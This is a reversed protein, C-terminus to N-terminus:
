LVGTEKLIKRNYELVPIIQKKVRWRIMKGRQSFQKEGATKIPYDGVLQMEKQVEENYQGLVKSLIYEMSYTQTDTKTPIDYAFQIPVHEKRIGSRGYMGYKRQYNVFEFRMGNCLVKFLHKGKFKLKLNCYLLLCQGILDEIDSVHGSNKQVFNKVFEMYEKDTKPYIIAKKM